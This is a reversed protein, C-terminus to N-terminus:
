PMPCAPLPCRATGTACRPCRPVPVTTRAPTGPSPTRRQPAPAAPAPRPRGAVLGAILAALPDGPVATTPPAPSPVFAPESGRGPRAPRARGPVSPARPRRAPSHVSGRRSAPVYVRAGCARCRTRGTASTSRWAHRCACSVAYPEPAHRRLRAPVYVAAGCARCRTCSSAAQTEWTSRCAPCTLLAVAGDNCRAHATLGAQDTLGAILEGHAGRMRWPLLHAESPACRARAGPVGCACHVPRPARGLAVPRADAIPRGLHMPVAAGL